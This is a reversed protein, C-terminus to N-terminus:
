SHFTLRGVMDFPKEVDDYGPDLVLTARREADIGYFALGQIELSENKQKRVSNIKFDFGPLAPNFLTITEGEGVNGSFGWIFDM